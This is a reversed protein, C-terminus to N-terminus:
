DNFNGTIKEFTEESYIYICNLSMIKISRGIKRRDKRCVRPRRGGRAVVKQAQPRFLLQPIQSRLDQLSLVSRQHRKCVACLRLLSEDNICYIKVSDLVHNRKGPPAKQFDVTFPNIHRRKHKQYCYHSKFVHNCFVCQFIENTDRNALFLIPIVKFCVFFSKLKSFKGVQWTKWGKDPPNTKLVQARPLM